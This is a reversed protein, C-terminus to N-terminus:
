YYYYYYYYYYHCYYYDVSGFFVVTVGFPAAATDCM